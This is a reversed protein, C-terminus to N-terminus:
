QVSPLREACPQGPGPLSDTGCPGPTSEGLSPEGSFDPWELPSGQSIATQMVVGLAQEAHALRRRLSYTGRFSPSEMIAERLLLAVAFAGEFTQQTLAQAAERTQSTKFTDM